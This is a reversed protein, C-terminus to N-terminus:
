FSLADDTVVYRALGEILGIAQVGSRGPLCIVFICIQAGTGCFFMVAFQEITFYKCINDLEHLSYVPAGCFNASIDNLQQM